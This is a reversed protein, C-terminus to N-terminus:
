FGNNIIRKMQKLTVKYTYNKKLKGEWKYDVYLEEQEDTAAGDNILDEIFSIVESTKFHLKEM